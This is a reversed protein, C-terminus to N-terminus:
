DQKNKKGLIKMLNRSMYYPKESSGDNRECDELFCLFLTDVAMSYVNFFVTAVIYTIIMIVIVPVIEYHLGSNDIGTLDTAFLVYSIAGVGMTILLKGMFFLFDTVKDLVFVRLINRMLLMFADKASMCFNKGHIACMIYANRNLFKLFKELCWFFCKCCCLIAKTIENDYKKLKHDIYELAVRIMRCIAIILSGFALTGIHYRLTRGTAELVAFFPLNSKNFTWYWTAFVSALIMQGLASVFFTGWFFGFINFAQLYPYWKPNNMTTFKCTVDSCLTSTLCTLNRFTTPDCKTGNKFDAFCPCDSTMGRIKYEPDGTTALYLAVCIAFAIVAIQLIWPFVPFFLVSTVSSVAKSGEKVLAIALVIRKRLFIMMLLVIALVISCIILLVLWTDKKTAYSEFINNTEVDEDTKNKLEIYKVTTFYVGAILLALVGILSLWVMPAALWRLMMIYIISVLVAIGVGALIKWWSEVLDDVINQGVQQYNQNDTFYGITNQVFLSMWMAIKSLHKKLESIEKEVNTDKNPKNRDATNYLCRNLFSSSKFYYRACKGEKVLKEPSEQSPDINYDCILHGKYNGPDQDFYYYYDPCKEVCVQKTQCGTFPVSPSFCKSLDFFFLYPRDKVHEDLGCRSGYSDKPVLLTNPDGSSFAYIAVGAWCGIFVFFILLCIIDTCSRHRLPGNFDPDYPIPEWSHYRERTM